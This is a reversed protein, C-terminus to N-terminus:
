RGVGGAADFVLDKHTQALASLLLRVDAKVFRQARVAVSAANGKGIEDARRRVHHLILHAAANGEATHAGGQWQQRLTLPHDNFHAVAKLVPNHM